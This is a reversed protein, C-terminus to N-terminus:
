AVTGGPAVTSVNATKVITLSAVTVTATCAANGSGSACNSGATTSTVTNALIGSGTDPNNVTVTYTITAVAGVALNGTWTLNPSAYSVTGATASANANYVANALVSTLPDTFTAGTYATQGSNTVTVTYAVTGGPAVTSVNATKVITLGSVTVTATCAANGSGSACNSGATTSTVTNAM